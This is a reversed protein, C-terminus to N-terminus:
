QCDANTDVFVRGTVPSLCVYMTGETGNLAIVANAALAMTAAADIYPVGKGTFTVLGNPLGSWSLSVGELMVPFSFGAPHAVGASTSCSNGTMSYGNAQLNLCYRQGRTMSLTQVYRLDSALQQAQGALTLTAKSPARPMVAIVLITLLVLAVILEILTFGRDLRGM